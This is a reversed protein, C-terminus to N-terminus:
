LRGPEETWPIKWAPISSHTAMEKELAHFHFTFTFDSLLTRSKAVWPSCDVLSRWGHSERPLLVPTPQWTYFLPKGSLETPLADVQLAPSGLEIGLNPLDTNGTNKPKGQPEAPLSDVWLAPSRPKIGPSPLDKPSPFPM